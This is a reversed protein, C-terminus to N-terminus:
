WPPECEVCDFKVAVGTNGSLEVTPEDAALAGGGPGAGPAELRLYYQGSSLNSTARASADVEPPPGLPPLTSVLGGGLGVRRSPDIRDALPADCEPIAPDRASLPSETRVDLVLCEPGVYPIGMWAPTRDGTSREVDWTVSGLLGYSDGDGCDYASGNSSPPEMAHHQVDVYYGEEQAAGLPPLLVTLSVLLILSRM